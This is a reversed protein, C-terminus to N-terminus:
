SLLGSVMPCSFLLHGVGLFVGDVFRVRWDRPDIDEASVSLPAVARPGFLSKVASVRESAIVIGSPVFRKPNRGFLERACLNHGSFSCRYWLGGRWRRPLRDGIGRGAQGIIGRSDASWRVIGQVARSVSLAGPLTGAISLGAHWTFGEGGDAAGGVGGALGPGASAGAALGAGDGLLGATGAAGLGEGACLGAALAGFVLWGAFERGSLGM